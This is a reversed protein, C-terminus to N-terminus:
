DLCHKYLSIDEETAHSWLQKIGINGTDTHPEFRNLILSVDLPIELLVPIHDSINDICDITEYTIISHSMKVPIIFHDILSTAGTPSVFTYDINCINSKCCYFLNEHQVFHNLSLTHNSADHSLDTNVDGGIVCYDINKNDFYLSIDSLVCNYDYHTNATHNDCPM